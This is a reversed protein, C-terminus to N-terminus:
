GTVSPPHRLPRSVRTPKPPAHKAHPRAVLPTCNAPLKQPHKLASDTPNITRTVSTKVTTTRHPNQKRRTLDSRQPPPVTQSKNEIYKQVHHLNVPPSSQAVHKRQHTQASHQTPQKVQPTPPNQSPTSHRRNHNQSKQSLRERLPTHYIHTRTHTQRHNHNHIPVTSPMFARRPPDNTNRPRM